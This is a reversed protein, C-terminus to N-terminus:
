WVRSRPAIRSGERENVEVPLRACFWLRQNWSPNERACRRRQRKPVAKTSAKAGECTIMPRVSWRGQRGDPGQQALGCPWSTLELVCVHACVHMVPGHQERARTLDIGFGTVLMELAECYVHLHHEVLISIILRWGWVGGLTSGTVGLSM